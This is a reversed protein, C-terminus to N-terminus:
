QTKQGDLSAESRAKAAVTDPGRYRALAIGIRDQIRWMARARGPYDNMMVSFVVTDDDQTNVYGSLASVGILSGTKARLRLVAPSNEFRGGITGSSGAVALSSVFEPRLEVREWMAQLIKTLLSPTVRNTDNLGSGNALVFTGEPVGIEVLFDHIVKNGSEWSGQTNGVEAGLTKLIQEAMVNNSFKNLTSVIESLPRSFHTAVHITNKKPMPALKVKGKVDVGRMVLMEKILEGTYQSPNAVPRRVVQGEADDISLAGRITVRIRDGPLRSTGVWARALTGSGLTTASSTIEINTVPPWVLVQVPDGVREGPLMRISFTGFNASLPGIPAAYAQDSDEQDWGPGEVNDDFFSADVILDGKVTKFGRQAVDNVLGFLEESTLTPDGYGKVYLNGELIGNKVVPDRRMETRFRYNPGLYWLAAGTTLLKQNSAPNFLKADNHAFLTRGDKLSVISVGAFAQDLEPARLIERLEGQLHEIAPDSPQARVPSPWFTTAGLLLLFSSGFTHPQAHFVIVPASSLM